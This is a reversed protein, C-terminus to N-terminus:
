LSQFLLYNNTNSKQSIYHASPLKNQSNFNSKQLTLITLISRISSSVRIFYPSELLFTSIQHGFFTNYLVTCYLFHGISVNNAWYNLKLHILIFFQVTRANLQIQNAYCECRNHPELHNDFLFYNAKLLLNMLQIM